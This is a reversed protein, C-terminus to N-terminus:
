RSGRVVVLDCSMSVTGPGPDIEAVVNYERPFVDIPYTPLYDGHLRHKLADVGAGKIYEESVVDAVLLGPGPFAVFRFAGDRGVDHFNLRTSGQFAPYAEQHPNDRFVYYAVQGRVPKGSGAELVRGTVWVGRKLNIDLKNPGTGVPDGVKISDL